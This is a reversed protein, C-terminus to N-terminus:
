GAHFVMAVLGFRVRDGDKIKAQVGHKLREGNVFTGNTVGAEESVFVGAERVTIRAHRRSLSRDTDVASLEVEPKFGTKPDARGVLADGAAPLPFESGTGTHVLRASRLVGSKSTSWVGSKSASRGARKATVPPTLAELLRRSLRRIMQAAIEPDRLLAEFAAADLTILRAASAARASMERPRQEVAALEGFLEGAGLRAAVIKGGGQLLEIEGEEIVYVERSADGEKYVFAGKEFSTADGADPNVSAKAM